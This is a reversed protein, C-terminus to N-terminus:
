RGAWQWRRWDQLGTTWRWRRGNSRVLIAGALDTRLSAVGAQRLRRMTSPRPHGFRNRKGASVIALSPAVARLFAPSTSTTSGHHGVKLVDAKLRAGSEVMARESETEADGTLLASFAGHDLRVVVSGDNTSRSGPRPALATLRVGDLEISRGPSPTAWPVGGMLWTALLGLNGDCTEPQGAEWAREVPLAAAVAPLGGVHDQHAHTAVMLDIRQCGMRRLYPLVHAKGADFDDDAPGGDVLIWRGRPTRIAIADGQGVSLFALELEGPRLPPLTGIAAVVGLVLATRRHRLGGLLAGYLALLGWVPWGAHSAEIAPSAAMWDVLAVLGDLPLRTLPALWAAAQPWVGGLAAVFLGWPTLALILPGALWNAPLALWSWTHFIGIQWPTVWAWAVVPVLLMSWAAASGPLPHEAMYRGLRLLGYTALLSFQWGLDFLCTPDAVLMGFATLYFAAFPVNKRGLALGLLGVLGMLTARVMGPPAGTLLLYIVLWPATFAASPVASLGAARAGAYVLGAILGVQAGSAALLHALGLRRFAQATEEAVPAAGGGLVLSGLLAARDPPLGAGLGDILRCRLSDVAGLAWWGGDPGIRTATEAHYTAFIGQRALHAAADFGGPNIAGGPRSLRGAFAWRDGVRPREPSPWTATLRGRGDAVVIEARWADNKRVPPTAVTGELRIFRRPAAWCVDTAGPAPQRLEAWWAAPGLVLLALLVARLVPRGKIAALLPMAALPWWSGAVWPAIAMGLATGVALAALM